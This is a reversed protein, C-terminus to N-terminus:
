TEAGKGEIINKNYLTWFAQEKETLAMGLMLKIYIRQLKKEKSWSEFEEDFMEM